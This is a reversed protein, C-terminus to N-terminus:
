FTGYKTQVYNSLDSFNVGTDYLLLEAFLGKLGRSPDFFPAFVSLKGSITQVAFPDRDAIQVGNLEGRYTTSSFVGVMSEPSGSGDGKNEVVGVDASNNIRIEAVTDFQGTDRRIQMIGVDNLFGLLAQGNGPNQEYVVAASYPGNLTISTSSEYGDDNVEFAPQGGIGSTKYTVPGGSFPTFDNGNGSFDTVTSTTANNSLSEQSADIHVLLNGPSPPQPEATFVTDGDVTIEQVDTGDITAGTIDTGDISTPPIM